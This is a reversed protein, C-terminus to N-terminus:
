VFWDTPMYAAECLVAWDEDLVTSALDRDKAPLPTTEIPIDAPDTTILAGAAAASPTFIMSILPFVEPVVVLKEVPVM